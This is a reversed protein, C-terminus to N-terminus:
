DPNTPEQPGSPKTFWARRSAFEIKPEDNDNGQNGEQGQPTNTDGVEFEQEDVHVSKGSSKPQSKIGKSSRSSSDKTKPSTTPTAYKSTKRKKLGRDSGAFPGEDK